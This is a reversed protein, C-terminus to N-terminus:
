VAPKYVRELAKEPEGIWSRADAAAFKKKVCMHVVRMTAYLILAIVHLIGAFPTRERRSLGV